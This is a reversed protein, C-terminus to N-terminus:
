CETAAEKCEQILALASIPNDIGADCDLAEIADLCRQASPCNQPMPPRPIQNYASCAVSLV